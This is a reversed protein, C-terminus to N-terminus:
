LVGSRAPAPRHTGTREAVAQAILEVVRAAAREWTFRSARALGRRRLEERLAPNGAVERMCSALAEVDDVPFLLGADGVVEPLAGGTSAIVPCGCAMAEVAVFGFSEYFSPVLLAEAAAYLAPLEGRPLPGPAVVREAVGFAAALERVDRTKWRRGGAVVLRHPLDRAVRALAALATEIRKNPFLHGVFLFYPGEIGFRGRVQARAVHPNQPRFLPDVGPPVVATRQPPFHARALFDRRHRETLCIARDAFPLMTHDFVRGRLLTRLDLLEPMLLHDSGPLVVVRAFRGFAPCGAFAHFVADARVRRAWRAVALHDWLVGPRMRTTAVRVNAAGSAAALEDATPDGRAGLYVFTWGPAAAPLHRLLGQEFTAPGGSLVRGRVPVLVRPGAPAVPLVTM